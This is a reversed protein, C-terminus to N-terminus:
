KNLAFIHAYCIFRKSIQRNKESKNCSQLQNKYIEYRSINIAKVKLQTFNWSLTIQPQLAM